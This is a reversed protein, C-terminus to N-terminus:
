PEMPSAVAPTASAGPAPCASPPLAECLGKIAKSLEEDQPHASALQQGLQLAEMMGPTQSWVTRSAWAKATMVKVWTAILRPERHGKAILPEMLSHALSVDQTALASRALAHAADTSDPAMSHWREAAGRVLPDNGAHFRELNRHVRMAQEATPPNQKTYENIWLRAGGDVGRREDRM